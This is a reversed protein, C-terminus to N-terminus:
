PGAPTPAAAVAGNVSYFPCVQVGTTLTKCEMYSAAAMGIWTGASGGNLTAAGAGKVRVVAGSNNFISFQQGAVPTSAGLWAATGAAATPVINLGPLVVNTGLAPTAAMTPVYSAMSVYKGGVTFQLNGSGAGGTIDGDTEMIWAQNGGVYAQITGDSTNNNQIYIDTGAAAGSDIQMDPSASDAGPLTISSGRSGDAAFAGGGTLNLVADDDADATTGSIGLTQAATTGADGWRMTFATDSSAGIKLLRQADGGLTLTFPNDVTSVPLMTSCLKLAQAAPFPGTLAAGCADAYASSAILLSAVLALIKKM